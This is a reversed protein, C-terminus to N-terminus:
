RRTAGGIRAPRHWYALQKVEGSLAVMGTIFLHDGRHRLSDSTLWPRPLLIWQGSLETARRVEEAREILQTM